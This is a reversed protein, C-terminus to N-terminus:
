YQEVIDDALDCLQATSYSSVDNLAESMITSVQAPAYERAHYLTLACIALKKIVIETASKKNITHNDILTVINDDEWEATKNEKKSSWVEGTNLDIAIFADESYRTFDDAIKQYDNDALEEIEIM